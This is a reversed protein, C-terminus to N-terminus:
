LPVNIAIFFTSVVISLIFSNLVHKPKLQALVAANYGMCVIVVFFLEIMNAFAHGKMLIMMAAISGVCSSVIIGASMYAYYTEEFDALLSQYLKM